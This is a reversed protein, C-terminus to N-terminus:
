PVGAESVQRGEARARKRVDAMRAQVEAPTLVEQEVLLNRMAKIWKDYYGIQDYDQQRYEEIVRRLADVTFIARKPAVLLILMADVRKQWLVPDHETRDIPGLDLGGLDHIGRGDLGKRPNNQREPNSM